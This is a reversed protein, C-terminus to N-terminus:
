IIDLVLFPFIAILQGKFDLASFNMQGSRLAICIILIM